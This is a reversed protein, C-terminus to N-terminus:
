KRQHLGFPNGEPDTCWASRCTKGEILPRALTAGLEQVRQVAPELDAVSFLAGGCQTWEGSPDHALAFANGDPLQYEVFYANDFAGRRLEFANEYFHRAREMDKVLYMVFDIGRTQIKQTVM